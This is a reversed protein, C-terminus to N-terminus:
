QVVLTLHQSQVAAGSTATVVISYTGAPTGGAGNSTGNSGGGCSCLAVALLPALRWQKNWLPSRASLSILIAASLGVLTVSLLTLPSYIPLLLSRATTAVGISLKSATTADAVTTAPVNCTAHAPAGTCNIKITGGIGQGGISLPFTATQGATVTASDSGGPTLGLGLYGQAGSLSIFESGNVTNDHISLVGSVERPETVLIPTNPGYEPLEFTVDVSCAQGVAITPGCQSSQAYPSKTTIGFIQLPVTGSNTLTVRQPASSTGPQLTGFTLSTPSVTTTTVGGFGNLQVIRPSGPSSDTITISGSHTGFETPTFAVQVTCTGGAPAVTGCGNQISFEGTVAVDTVTLGRSGLDVVSVPQPGSTVGLPQAFFELSAPSLAAAADDIPAIKLVVANSGEGCPDVPCDVTGGPVPQLAKFVPFPSGGSGGSFPEQGAAYINGSSDAAIDTLQGGGVLSSFLLSSSDPNISAVFSTLIPDVNSQIPNKLTTNAAGVGDVYVNGSSDLALTNLSSELCTSFKLTGDAGIKSIFGGVGPGPVGCPPFDVIGHVEPFSPTSPINTQGAVVINKAADVAVANATSTSGLYTSYLLKSGDSAITSVVACRNPTGTGLPCSTQIANSTTPYGSTAYGAVTVSGTSDVAINHPGPGSAASSDQGLYTSYVASSLSPDLVTVFIDSNGSGLASQLPNHTPFDTSITVGAIYLNSNPNGAQLALGVSSEVLSGGLYTAALVSTASPNLKVIGLNSGKAVSQFATSGSPIPLLPTSIPPPPENIQLPRPNAPGAVYVNGTGDVVMTAVDSIGDVYTSFLLTQGTPDLKCLFGLAAGGPNKAEVVGPTVPFATSNTTGGVYLNGSNDVFIVEAEQGPPADFEQYTSGGLFTSYAVVPDFVLKPRLNLQLAEPANPRRMLQRSDIKLKYSDPQSQRPPEAFAIVFAAASLLLASVSIFFPFSTQRPNARM